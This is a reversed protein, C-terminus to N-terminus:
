RQADPAKLEPTTSKVTAYAFELASKCEDLTPTAKAYRAFDSQEAFERVGSQSLGPTHMKYLAAMLEPTTCELADFGYREGLYSRVIESLRFYFHKIEGKAPLNAQRLADLAAMTRLHLPALPKPAVPKATRPRAWFRSIAFALLLGAIVIGLVWLLRYTRVPVPQAPHLDYLAAGKQDADAPLTSVIEIDAGNAEIRTSGDVQTVEFQVKPTTQKGLAFAAWTVKVTTTASTPGDQRSRQQGLYDFDGSPALPVLEYRQGKDHTIVYEVDFHEGLQAKEVKAHM